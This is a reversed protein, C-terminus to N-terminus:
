AVALLSVDNAYDCICIWTLYKSFVVSLASSIMIHNTPHTLRLTFIHKLYVYAFHTFIHYAAM